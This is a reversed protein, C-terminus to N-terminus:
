SACIPDRGTVKRHNKSWESLLGTSSEVQCWSCNKLNLWNRLQPTSPRSIAPTQSAAPQHRTTSQTMWWHTQATSCRMPGYFTTHIWRHRCISTLQPTSPHPVALTQSAASQHCTTSQSKTWRHCQHMTCTWRRHSISSCRCEVVASVESNHHALIHFPQSKLLLLNIALQPSDNV